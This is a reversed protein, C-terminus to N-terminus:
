NKKSSLYFNRAEITEPFIFDNRKMSRTISSHFLYLLGDDLNQNSIKVIEELFPFKRYKCSKDAVFLIKDLLTMNKRGLTHYVIADQMEKSFGYQKACIDAAIKGHLLLPMQKESSSVLISNEKVYDM